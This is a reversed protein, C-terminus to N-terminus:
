KPYKVKGPPLFIQDMPVRNRRRTKFTHWSLGFYECWEIICKKKGNIHLIHNSRRNRAQEKKTAWKCNTKSYGKNNDKREISHKPSPKKGMDKLFTEFSHRWQKSMLIGRGGYSDYAKDNKDYCRQIIRCWAEHERTRSLGHTKSPTEFKVCGCSHIGGSKVTSGVAIFDNGCDCKFLWRMAGHGDISVKKIATLSNFKQGTIELQKAM